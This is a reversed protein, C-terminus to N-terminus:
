LADMMRCIKDIENACKECRELLLTIRDNASTKGQMEVLRDKIATITGSMEGLFERYGSKKESLLVAKPRSSQGTEVEDALHQMGLKSFAEAVTDRFPSNRLVDINEKQMTAMKESSAVLQLNEGIKRASFPGGDFIGEEVQCLYKEFAELNGEELMEHLAARPIQYLAAASSMIDAETTNLNNSM